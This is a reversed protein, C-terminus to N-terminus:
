FQRVQIGPSRPFAPPSFRLRTGDNRRRPCPLPRLQRCFFLPRDPQPPPVQTPRHHNSFHPLFLLLFPHLLSSSPRRCRRQRPFPPVGRTSANLCRLRTSDLHVDLHVGLRLDDIEVAAAVSPSRFCPDFTLFEIGLAADEYERKAAEDDM